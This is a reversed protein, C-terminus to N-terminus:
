MGSTKYHKIHNPVSFAQSLHPEEKEFTMAARESAHVHHKVFAWVGPTHGPRGFVTSTFWSRGRSSHFCMCHFGNFVIPRPLDPCQKNGGITAFPFALAALALAKLPSNRCKSRHPTPSRGLTLHLDVVRPKPRKAGLNAIALHQGAAPVGKLM